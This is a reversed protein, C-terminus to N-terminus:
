NMETVCRVSEARLISSGSLGFVAAHLDYTAVNLADILTGSWVYESLCYSEQAGKCDINHPCWASNYGNAYDCLMLGNENLELSYYLWKELENITPLRWTKGGYNFKSCIEKAADYSCVTRTCGDYGGYNSDCSPYWATKGKWCCKSTQTYCYEGNTQVVNVSAPIPLMASDGM